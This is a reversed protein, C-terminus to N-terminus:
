AKKGALWVTGITRDGLMWGLFHVLWSLLFARSRRMAGATASALIRRGTRRDKAPSARAASGQVTMMVALDPSVHAVMAARAAMETECNRRALGETEDQVDSTGPVRYQTSGPYLGDGDDAAGAAEVELGAPLVPPPLAAPSSTEVM